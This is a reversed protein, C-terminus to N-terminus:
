IAVKKWKGQKFLYIAIVALVSESIAIAWYPGSDAFGWYHAMVYALPIQILWFCFMNILMPTRTDGAGNFASSVVMAYGYAVYGLCMIKLGRAGGRAVIPDATFFQMIFDAGLFFIISVFILFIMNYKGALWVSKEAREPKGAGLNQGVLTAAANAMGWAPLITFIIIRIAITYAALAQDGFSTIIRVIFLWSTTAVLFQVAGTLSVGILSKITDGVWKFHRKELRIVADRGYFLIYLQYLIGSGRGITTAVAAGTVGLEPFPGLGFIFCPDLIINLGNALWLTRMAIAADGAGRFIANFVFLFFLLGNFGLVIQTYRYGTEIVAESAGMLGLIQRAGFWCFVGTIVVIILSLFIAQVAASAGGEPDKEGIRRAIMATVAMAIGLAMSEILMLVVETVGVVAVAETSIRSVFFVDVLAFLSEMVMELIMPVALLVIARKISGSTYEKESGRVAQRLLKIFEKM